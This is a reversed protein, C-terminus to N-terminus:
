LEDEKKQRWIRMRCRSSCYLKRKGGRPTLPFIENCGPCKEHTLCEGQWYKFTKEEVSHGKNSVWLKGGKVTGTDTKTYRASGDEKLILVAAGVPLFRYERPHPIM